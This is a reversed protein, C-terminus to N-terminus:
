EAVMEGTMEPHLECDFFYTGPELAPVEYVVETSSVLEGSFLKTSRSSDTYIAVNHPMSEQNRFWITFPEGAPVSVTEQDFKMDVAVITLDADTPPISAGPDGGASGCAALLGALTVGSLILRIRKV